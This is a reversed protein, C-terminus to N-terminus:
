MHYCIWSRLSLMNLKFINQCLLVKVGTNQIMSQSLALNKLAFWTLIIKNGYNRSFFLVFVSPLSFGRQTLKGVMLETKLNLKEYSYDSCLAPGTPLLNRGRLGRPDFPKTYNLATQGGSAVINEKGSEYKTCGSNMLTVMLWSITAQSQCTWQKVRGYIENEM